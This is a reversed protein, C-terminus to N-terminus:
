VWASVKQCSTFVCPHWPKPREPSSPYCIQQVLRAIAGRPNHNLAGGESSYRLGLREKATASMKGTKGRMKIALTRTKM